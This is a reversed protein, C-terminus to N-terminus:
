PGATLLIQLEREKADLFVKGFTTMAECTTKCEEVLDGPPLLSHTPLPYIKMKSIMISDGFRNEPTDDPLVDGDQTFQKSEGPQILHNASEMLERVNPPKLGRMHQSVLVCRIPKNNSSEDVIDDIRLLAVGPRYAFRFWDPWGAPFTLNNYQLKDGLFDPRQTDWPFLDCVFGTSQSNRSFTFTGDPWYTHVEDPAGEAAFPTHFQGDLWEPQRRILRLNPLNERLFLTAAYTINRCFTITLSEFNERRPAGGYVIRRLGQDTVGMSGVMSLAKLNPLPAHIDLFEFFADNAYRGLDLYQLNSLRLFVEPLRREEFMSVTLRAKNHFLIASADREDSIVLQNLSAELEPILSWTRKGFQSLVLRQQRLSGVFSFIENLLTLPLNAFGKCGSDDKLSM